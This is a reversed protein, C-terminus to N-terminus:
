CLQSRHRLHAPVLVSPIDRGTKAAAGPRARAPLLPWDRDRQSIVQVPEPWDIALCPDDHRLGAAAEPTYRHALQYIVDVDDCLTEFGHAFGEPIHLLLGNSSSLEFSEWCLYTDSAQRIDVVVDHIAGRTCTVLKAEGHPSRQYHMGRLTGRKHNHSHATQIFVTDLGHAAFEERCATRVFYGREDEFREAEILTVGSLKTTLFRV